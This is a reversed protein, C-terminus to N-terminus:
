SGRPRPTRRREALYLQNPPVVRVAITPLSEVWRHDCDRCRFEVVIVRDETRAQAPWGSVVMCRPCRCPFPKGDSMAGARIEPTGRVILSVGLIM